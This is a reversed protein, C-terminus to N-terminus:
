LHIQWHRILDTQAGAAHAMAFLAPRDWNEPPELYYLLASILSSPQTEQGGAAILPQRAPCPPSSPQPNPIPMHLLTVKSHLSSPTRRVLVETGQNNIKPPTREAPLAPSSHIWQLAAATLGPPFAHPSASMLHCVWETRCCSSSPTTVTFNSPQILWHNLSTLYITSDWSLQWAVAQFVLGNTTFFPLLAPM